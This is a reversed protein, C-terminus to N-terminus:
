SSPECARTKHSCTPRGAFSISRRRCTTERSRAAAPPRCSSAPARRSSTRMTTPLGSSSLTRYAQELHYGLIEAYEAARDGAKRELWEAFREHLDARRSKPLSAYAADRILIHSFRFGDEGVLGLAEDPVVLHKRVLSQLWGSVEARLEPPALERVAGWWFQKGMVAACQVITQEEPELRDLRAALVASITPPAALDSLDRVPVWVGDRFVLVGEDILMRLLEEVFLPNGEAAEAIRRATAGELLASGLLNDMLAGVEPEALPELVLANTNPREGTWGPRREVLEPRALCLLMIPASSSWGVLYELLDLLKPEAWHIDEFVLVLPRRRAASEFLKRLAWFAEEAQAVSEGLGIMGAVRECVLAVEGPPSLAAIKRRAEAPSDDNVIGAVQKVIEVVPWFTIGDGYPLCRGTVVRAGLLKAGVEQALRSKGVGAAGLITVLQCNEETLAREYVEELFTRESDRGVLPSSLRRLTQQASALVQDLRWPAVPQEKGKLPFAELPGARVRGHVLRYTEKGLLIEGPAAAQQLRAAVNVADGTAVTQGTAPDGAVVEGTNIGIRSELRVGAEIELDDNLLALQRRMEDAARVARLADDEHVTPVGFVAMVADGIFKEVSGGYRELVKRMEGFYRFMVRRMTEPDLREGLSTSGTVDCFLVTVTKRVLAAAEAARLPAACSLCFRGHEPNEEGCRPCVVM